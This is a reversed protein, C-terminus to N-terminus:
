PKSIASVVATAARQVLGSLVDEGDTNAKTKNKDNIVTASTKVLDLKYELSVEDRAKISSAIAATTYIGTIATSRAAGTAASGGGPIHGAASGAVNGIARGFLGGGGGGKKVTMSSSLIYDCQSQRAEEM